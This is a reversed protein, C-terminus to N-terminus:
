HKYIMVSDSVVVVVVVVVVVLVVQVVQILSLFGIKLTIYSTLSLVEM